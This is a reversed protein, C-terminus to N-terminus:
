FVKSWVVSNDFLPFVLYGELAVLSSSASWFRVSCLGVALPCETQTLSFHSWLFIKRFCALASMLDEVCVQVKCVPQLHDVSSALTIMCHLLHLLNPNCHCFYHTKTNHGSTIVLHPHHGKFVTTEIVWPSVATSLDPMSFNIKCYPISDFSTSNLFCLLLRATNNLYWMFPTLCVKLIIQCLTERRRVM